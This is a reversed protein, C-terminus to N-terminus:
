ACAFTVCHRAANRTCHPAPTDPVATPRRARAYAPPLATTHRYVRPLCFAVARLYPPLHTRPLCHPAAAYCPTTAAPQLRHLAAPLFPLLCRPLPMRAPLVDGYTPLLTYCAPRYACLCSLTAPVHCHRLTHATAPTARCLRLCDARRPPLRTAPPSSSGARCARHRRPPAAPLNCPVRAAPAAAVTRCTFSVCRRATRAMRVFRLQPLFMRAARPTAPVSSPPITPPSRDRLAPRTCSARHRPLPTRTRAAYAPLYYRIPRPLAFPPSTPSGPPACSGPTRPLTYTCAHDVRIYVTTRYRSPHPPLLVAALRTTFTTAFTTLSAVFDYVTYRLFRCLPTPLCCFYCFAGHYHHTFFRLPLTFSGLTVTTTAFYLLRYPLPVLIPLATVTARCHTCGAVLWGYCGYRLTVLWGTPLCRAFWSGVFTRTVTHCGTFYGHLSHVVVVYFRPTIFTTVYRLRLWGCLLVYIRLRLTFWRLCVYLGCGVTIRTVTVLRFWRLRTRVPTVTLTVAHTLPTFRTPLRCCGVLTILLWGVLGCRLGLRCVYVCCVCATVTYCRLWRSGYRTTHTHHLCCGHPAVTFTHPAYFTVTHCHIYVLWVHLRTICFPLGFRLRYRYRLRTYCGYRRTYTSHVVLTFTVRVLWGSRLGYTHHTYVVTVCGVHAHPLRVYRLTFTFTYGVTHYHTCRCGLTVTHLWVYVTVLRTYRLTYGTFYIVDTRPFGFPTFRLRVYHLGCVLGFGLWTHLWVHTFPYLSRTFPYVFYVYRLLRIWGFLTRLWGFLLVHTVLRLRTFAVCVTYLIWGHCRTTFAYYFRYSRLHLAHSRTHAVLVVTFRLRLRLRTFWVCGVTHLGVHVVSGYGLTFTHHTCGFTFRCCVAHVVLVHVHYVYHVHTTHLRLRTYRQLRTVTHLWGRTPVHPLRTHLRWHIYLVTCRLVHYCGHLRLVATHTYVHLLGHLLRTHCRCRLAYIFSGYGHTVYLPVFWTVYGPLTHYGPTRTRLTTYTFGHTCLPLAYVYGCGHTVVFTHPLSHFTRYGYGYVPVHYVLTRLLLTVTRLPLTHTYCGCPWGFHLWVYCRLLRLTYRLTVVTVLILTHLPHSRLWGHTFAHVVLWGHTTVPLTHTTHLRLAVHSHTRLRAYCRLLRTHTVLLGHSTSSYFLAVFQSYCAFQIL